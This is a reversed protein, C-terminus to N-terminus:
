PQRPCGCNNLRHRGPAVASDIVSDTLKGAEFTPVDFRWARRDLHRELVFKFFNPWVRLEFVLLLYLEQTDVWTEGWESKYVCTTSDATSSVRRSWFDSNVGVAYKAASSDSRVWNMWGPFPMMLLSTAVATTYRRARTVGFTGGGRRREFNEWMSLFRAIANVCGLASAGMRRADIPHKSDRRTAWSAWAHANDCASILGRRATAPSRGSATSWLGLTLFLASSAIDFTRCFGGGLGESSWGAASRQASLARMDNLAITSAFLFVFFCLVLSCWLWAGLKSCARCSILVM